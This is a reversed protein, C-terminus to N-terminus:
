GCEVDPELRLCMSVCVAFSSGGEGPPAGAEVTAAALPPGVEGEGEQRGDAPEDRGQQTDVPDALVSPGSGAGSGGIAGVAATTPVAAADLGAEDSVCKHRRSGSM